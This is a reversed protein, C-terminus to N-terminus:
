RWAPAMGLRRRRSTLAAAPVLGEFKGSALALRRRGESEGHAHASANMVEPRMAWLAHVDPASAIRRLLSERRTGGADGLADLLADRADELGNAPGSAVVPGAGLWDSISISPLGSRIWSM